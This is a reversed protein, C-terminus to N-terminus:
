AVPDFVDLQGAPDVPDALVVDIGRGLEGLVQRWRTLFDRRGDGGPGPGRGAQCWNQGDGPRQGHDVPHKDATDDPEGNLRTRSRRRRQRCRPHDGAGRCQGGSRAACAVQPGGSLAWLGPRM